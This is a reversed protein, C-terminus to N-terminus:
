GRQFPLHLGWGGGGGLFIGWFNELVASSVLLFWVVGFFVLVFLFIGFVDVFLLWFVGFFM